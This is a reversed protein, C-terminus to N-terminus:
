SGFFPIVVGDDDLSFQELFRNEDPNHRYKNEILCHILDRATIFEGKRRKCMYIHEVPERIPYNKIVKIFAIHKDVIVKDLEDISVSFRAKRFEM